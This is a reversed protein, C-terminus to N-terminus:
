LISQFPNRSVFLTEMTLSLFNFRKMQLSDLWRMLSELFKMPKGSGKVFRTGVYVATGTTRKASRVTQLLPIDEQTRDPPPIPYLEKALPDAFYTEVIVNLGSLTSKLQSYADTFANLEGSDLHM